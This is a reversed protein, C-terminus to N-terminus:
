WDQSHTFKDKIKELKEQFQYYVEHKDEGKIDVELYECADGGDTSFDAFIAMNIGLCTKFEMTADAIKREDNTLESDYMEQYDEKKVILVFSSSSSNSVFGSRTKM